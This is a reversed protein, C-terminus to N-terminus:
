QEDPNPNIYYIFNAVWRKLYQLIYDYRDIAYNNTMYWNSNLSIGNKKLINSNLIQKNNESLNDNYDIFLAKLPTYHDRLKIDNEQVNYKKQDRIYFLLLCVFLKERKLIDDPKSTSFDDLLDEDHFKYPDWSSTGIRMFYQDPNETIQYIKEFFDLYDQEFESLKPPKSLLEKTLCKKLRIIRDKLVKDREKKEDLKDSPCFHKKMFGSHKKFLHAIIVEERVNKSVDGDIGLPSNYYELIHMFWKPYTEKQNLLVTSQYGDEGIVFRAPFYENQDLIKKIMKNRNDQDKAVFSSLFLKENFLSDHVNPKTYELQEVLRINSEVKKNLRRQLSGGIRNRLTLFAQERDISESIKKIYEDKKKITLYGISCLFIFEAGIISLQGKNITEEVKSLTRGSCIAKIASREDNQLEWLSPSIEKSKQSDGLSYFVRSLYESSELTQRFDWISSFFSHLHNSKQLLIDDIPFLEQLLEEHKSIFLIFNNKLTEKGCNYLYDVYKVTSISELKFIVSLIKAITQNAFDEGLQKLIEDVENKESEIRDIRKLCRNLQSRGNVTLMEFDFNERLAELSTIDMKNLVIRFNVPKPESTLRM